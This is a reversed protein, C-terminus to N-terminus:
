ALEGGDVCALRRVEKLTISKAGRPQEYTHHRFSIFDAQNAFTMVRKSCAGPRYLSPCRADSVPSFVRGQRRQRM